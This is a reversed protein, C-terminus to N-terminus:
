TEAPGLILLDSRLPDAQASPAVALLTFEAASPATALLYPWEEALPLRRAPSCFFTDLTRKVLAWEFASPDQQAVLALARLL